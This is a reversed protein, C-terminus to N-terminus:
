QHFVKKVIIDSNNDRYKFRKIEIGSISTDNANQEFQRYKNPSFCGGRHLENENLM